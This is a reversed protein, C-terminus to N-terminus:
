MEMSMARHLMEAINETKISNIKDKKHVLMITESKNPPTRLLGIIPNMMLTRKVGRKVLTKLM